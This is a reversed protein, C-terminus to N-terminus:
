NCYPKKSLSDLTLLNKNSAKFKNLLKKSRLWLQLSTLYAWQSLRQAFSRKARTAEKMVLHCRKTPTLKLELKLHSRRIISGVIQTLIVLKSTQCKVKMRHSSSTTATLNSLGQALMMWELLGRFGLSSEAAWSGVQPERTMKLMKLIMLSTISTQTIYTQSLPKSLRSNSKCKCTTKSVKLMTDM